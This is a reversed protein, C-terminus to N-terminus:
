PRLRLIHKRMVLALFLPTSVFNRRWMRRPERALRYLWELGMKCMIQPARPHTGAFFDFVAGISGIVRANLRHQNDAVWKEQKPATMGVWLVDPSANNIADLMAANEEENWAGFPPSLTGCVSVAPFEIAAKKEILDLVRSSSGFFFVRGGGRKQLAGMIGYFYDAGAIRPGIDLHAAKAALSVGIGDPVVLTTQNLAQHFHSDDQAVVLSHPNACAFTIQRGGQEICDIADSIADSLIVRDIRVGLLECSREAANDTM